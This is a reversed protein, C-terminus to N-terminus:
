FIHVCKLVCVYVHMHVCKSVHVCCIIDGILAVAAVAPAVIMLALAVTMVILAVFVIAFAVILVVIAISVSCM